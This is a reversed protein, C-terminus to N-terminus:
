LDRWPQREQAPEDLWREGNLWTAPHAIFEPDKDKVSATYKKIGDILSDIDTKKLATKFAKRAQGKGIKRPVHEWWSEFKLLISETETETEPIADQKREAPAKSCTQDEVIFGASILLDINVRETANICRSIWEPDNPIQNEYRSALLWIAFLHAKTADPLRALNYDDLLEIYLKIWPPRRDKYHQFREFNKVRLFGM